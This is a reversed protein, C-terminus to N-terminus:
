LSSYDLCQKTYRMILKALCKVLPNLAQFQTYCILTVVEFMRHVSNKTFRMRQIFSFINPSSKSWGIYILCIHRFLVRDVRDSSLFFVFIHQAIKTCSESCSLPALSKVDVTSNSQNFIFMDFKQTTLVFVMLPYMIWLYCCLKLSILLLSSKSM